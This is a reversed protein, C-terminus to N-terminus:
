DASHGGVSSALRPYVAGAAARVEEHADALAEMVPTLCAGSRINGLSQIAAKRV